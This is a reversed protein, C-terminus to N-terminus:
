MGQLRVRELHRKDVSLVDLEVAVLSRILLALFILDILWGFDVALRWSIKYRWEEYIVSLIESIEKCIEEAGRKDVARDPFDKAEGEQGRGEAQQLYISLRIGDPGEQSLHTRIQPPQDNRNLASQDSGPSSSPPHKASLKQGQQPATTRQQLTHLGPQHTDGQYRPQEQYGHSPEETIGWCPGQWDKCCRDAICHLYLKWSIISVGWEADESERRDRLKNDEDRRLDEIISFNVWKIDDDTEM